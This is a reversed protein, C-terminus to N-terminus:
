IVLFFLYTDINYLFKTIQKSYVLAHFLSKNRIFLNITVLYKKLIKKVVLVIIVINKRLYAYM